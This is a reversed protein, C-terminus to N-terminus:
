KLFEDADLDLAQVAHRSAMVMFMDDGRDTQEVIMSAVVAMILGSFSFLRYDRWCDEWGYGGVGNARLRAHYERLLAKENTRRAEPSLGAGLFYSADSLAYGQAVTQWDVVALPPADGGTGFLMNDLRYDGHTLTMPGRAALSWHPLGQGLREALAIAEPALRESYRAVFGPFVSDYLAKLLTAGEPGPRSLWELRDLGADGWVPAHLRALEELALAARDPGCGALQDGPDAPAIDEMLMVFDAANAAVDAFFCRPTRIRVRQVLEQYFRVERLYVGQMAGTQRSTPNSSPFKGVVSAPAGPEPESWDLEFRVNTGMQGTGVTQARFSRVRAKPAVGAHHLVDTLWSASVEEPTSILAPTADSRPRRM